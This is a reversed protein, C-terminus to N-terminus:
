ATFLCPTKMQYIKTYLIFVDFKLSVNSTDLENLGEDLKDDLM